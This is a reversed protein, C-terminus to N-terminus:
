VASELERYNSDLSSVTLESRIHLKQGFRLEEGQGAGKEASATHEKQTTEVHRAYSTLEM